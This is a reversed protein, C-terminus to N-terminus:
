AAPKTVLEAYRMARMVDAYMELLSPFTHELVALKDRFKLADMSNLLATQYPPEQLKKALRKTHDRLTAVRTAIDQLYPRCTARWDPGHPADLGGDRPSPATPALPQPSTTSPVYTAFLEELRKLGDFVAALVAAGKHTGDGFIPAHDRRAQAMFAEFEQRFARMHADNAAAEQKEKTTMVGPPTPENTRPAVQEYARNISTTGAKVQEFLAPNASKVRKARTVSQKSVRAAAAAQGAASRADKSVPSSKMAPKPRGGKHKVTLKAYEAELTVALAARQSVSLQRRHLNRSVVLDLLQRDDLSVVVQYRPEVGARLCALYRNRGDLILGDVETIPERLGNAGIDAVLKEFEDPEMMPFLNALPHFEEAQETTPPLKPQETGAQREDM